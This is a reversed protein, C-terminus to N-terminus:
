FKQMYSVKRQILQYLAKFDGTKVQSSKVICTYTKIVTGKDELKGGMAKEIEQKEQLLINM